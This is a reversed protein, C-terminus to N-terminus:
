RTFSVDGSTLFLILSENDDMIILCINLHINTNTNISTDYFIDSIFISNLYSSALNFLVQFSLPLFPYNM